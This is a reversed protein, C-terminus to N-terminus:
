RLESMETSMKACFSSERIHTRAGTLFKEMTQKRCTVSIETQLATGTLFVCLPSSGTQNIASPNPERVEPTLVGALQSTNPVASPTGQRLGNDMALFDPPHDAFFRRFCLPHAFQTQPNKPSKRMDGRNTKMLNSHTKIVSNPSKIQPTECEPRRTKRSPIPQNARRLSNLQSASPNGQPAVPIFCDRSQPERYPIALCIGRTASSARSASARRMTM